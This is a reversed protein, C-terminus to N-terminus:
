EIMLHKRHSIKLHNSSTMRIYKIDQIISCELLPCYCVSLLCGIENYDVHNINM